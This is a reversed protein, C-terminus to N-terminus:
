KFCARESPVDLARVVLIFRSIYGELVILTFM